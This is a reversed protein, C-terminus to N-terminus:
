AHPSPVNTGPPVPGSPTNTGPQTAGPAPPAVQPPPPQLETIVKQQLQKSTPQLKLLAENLARQNPLIYTLDISDRKAGEGWYVSVTAIKLVENDFVQKMQEKIMERMGEDIGSVGMPSAENEAAVGNDAEKTGFLLDVLPLQFNEINLDYTFINDKDNEFQGDKVPVNTNLEKFDYHVWNYEVQSMVRKAYWMAESSMRNYNSFFVVKGQTAVVQLIVTSMIAMAMITELLTFSIEHRRKEVKM